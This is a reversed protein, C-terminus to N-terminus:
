ESNIRGVRAHLAANFTQPDAPKVTRVNGNQERLAGPRPIERNLFASFRGFAGRGAGASSSHHSSRQSPQYTNPGKRDWSQSRKDRRTREYGRQCSDTDTAGQSANGSSQNPHSNRLIFGFPIFASYFVAADQKRHM